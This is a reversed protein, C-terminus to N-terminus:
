AQRRHGSIAKQPGQSQPLKRLCEACYIEASRMSRFRLAGCGECYKPELTEYSLQNQSNM